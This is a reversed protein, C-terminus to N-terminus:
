IVKVVWWRIISTQVGDACVLPQGFGDQLLDDVFRWIRLKIKELEASDKFGCRQNPQATSLPHFSKANGTRCRTEWGVVHSSNCLWCWDGSQLFLSNFPPLIWELWKTLHLWLEFARLASLPNDRERGIEPMDQRCCFISQDAICSFLIRATFSFAAGGLHSSAVTSSRQVLSPRLNLCTTQFIIYPHVVACYFAGEFGVPPPRNWATASRGFFVLVYIYIYIIDCIM